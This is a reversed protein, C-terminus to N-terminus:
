DAGSNVLDDDTLFEVPKVSKDGDVYQQRITSELSCLEDFLLEVSESSVIVLSIDTQTITM